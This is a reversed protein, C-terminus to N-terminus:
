NEHDDDGEASYGDRHHAPAIFGFSGVAPSSRLFDDGATFFLRSPEGNKTRGGFTMSWMGNTNVAIPEGNHKLVGLFEYTNPDYAHIVSDDQNGILLKGGFEGFDKPALVVSYPNQLPGDAFNKAVSHLLHGETDFTTVYGGVFRDFAAYTVFIKHDVYQVNLVTFPDAQEADSFSGAFQFHCDFMDVENNTAEPSLGSDSAYLMMQGHRNRAMALGWYSAPIPKTSSDVMIIANYADVYPSWGSITGDITSFILRAPGSRGNKSIVFCPTDNIVLGTPSGLTGAPQSPAAPVTVQFPLKRGQDDYATVVGAGEDAIFFERNSRTDLGWPIVLKPDQRPGTGQTVLNRVRYQAEAPTQLTILLGAWAIGTFLARILQNM